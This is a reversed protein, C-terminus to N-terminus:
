SPAQIKIKLTAELVTLFQRVDLPKTLYEKAGAEKLREIQHPTTDASVVIVTIARTNENARLLRLVEDGNIDPLHVDMLIVDPHHKAALELGFQGRTAAVLRIEPRHRLINQVLSFNSLNDEIYLVLAQTEGSQALSALRQAEGASQQTREAVEGSQALPLEVAFTSGVGLTSQVTIAGSMAEVVRRTLALGLGTGEIGSREAGLRDFPTWLREVNEPAIGM